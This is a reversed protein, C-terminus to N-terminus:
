AADPALVVRRPDDTLRTYRVGDLNPREALLASDRALQTAPLPWNAPGRVRPRPGGIVARAVDRVEAVRLAAFTESVAFSKALACLDEGCDDLADSFAPHPAILAAAVADCAREKQLFHPWRKGIRAFIWEAMEHAIVFDARQTALGARLHIEWEHPGDLVVEGDGWVEAAPFERVARMGPLRYAIRLPTRPRAPELGALEYIAVQTRDADVGHLFFM